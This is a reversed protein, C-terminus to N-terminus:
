LVARRRCPVLNSLILSTPSPKQGPYRAQWKHMLAACREATPRQRAEKATSALLLQEITAWQEGDDGLNDRVLEDPLLRMDLNLEWVRAKLQSSTKM